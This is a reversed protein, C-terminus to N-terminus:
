QLVFVLTLLFFCIWFLLVTLTVTMYGLLFNLWRLLTMQFLFIIVSNVLVILEVLIPNGTRIISMLTELVFVNASTNILLVEDITSSISDFVTCLSLFFSWYFFFFYSVSHLLALWFCLCSDASNDLSLDWDFPLGEKVYVALGYSYYFGKPNFSSLRDCLFQWFTGEGYVSRLTFSLIM